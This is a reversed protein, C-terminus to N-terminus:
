ASFSLANDGFSLIFRCLSDKFLVGVIGAPVTGVMLWIIWRRGEGKGSLSESIISIIRSRYYILVAILTGAHATIEFSLDEAPNVDLIARALALHGSSSIPLFETLGQVIGMVLAQLLSM